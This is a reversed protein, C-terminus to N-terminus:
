LNVSDVATFIVNPKLASDDQDGSVIEFVLLLQYVLQHPSSCFSRRLATVRLAVRSVRPAPRGHKV